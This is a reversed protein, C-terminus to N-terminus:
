IIDIIMITLYIPIKYYRTGIIIKIYQIANNFTYNTISNIITIDSITSTISIISENM